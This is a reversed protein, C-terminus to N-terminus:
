MFKINVLKLLDFLPVHSWIAQFINKQNLCSCNLIQLLHLYMNLITITLTVPSMYFHRTSSFRFDTNCDHNWNYGSYRKLCWTKWHGPLFNRTCTSRWTSFWHKTKFHFGPFSLICFWPFAPSFKFNQKLISTLM